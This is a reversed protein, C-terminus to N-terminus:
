LSRFTGAGIKASNCWVDDGTLHIHQWGLLSLYRLVPDKVIQGHGCLANAVREAYVTNWLVIVVKVLNLASVVIGCPYWVPEGRCHPSHSVCFTRM